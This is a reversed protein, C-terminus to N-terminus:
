FKWIKWQKPGNWERIGNKENNPVTRYEIEMNEMTRSRKMGFKWIKWQEPSNWELNGYKNNNLVTGNSIEMTEMTQSREM